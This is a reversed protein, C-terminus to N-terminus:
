RAQPARPKDEAPTTTTPASDPAPVRVRQFAPSNIVGRVFASIRYDEAAAERIIRRVTPMDPPEVRRGLAYTMLSQTFSLLFAEKHRLVAARLGAPGDITTGDYLTGSADVPTGGDKVRWKGTADFNDLALGLPDIVRHCSSCAPNNRHQEMRERVSLTRGSANTGNTEELAPVNPPPPPPPAGLLVEMVWKGRMVPSTRDAISTLTLVSGHGLIGRRYDPVTVRRFESGTVNPIGYHRAIRENVFTYDADLLDLLSRDEAVLSQFLLETEHKLAISLTQDAYPFLIPDPTTRELDQLRLWQSAFRTALAAARPDAIMRQAQKLMGGPASLRGQEAAKLLVEDPGGAWLFFSLRSALEYDGLRYETGALRAPTEEIRFLFQPSALIAELAKTIGYEFNRDSRGRAFFTMLRDFDKATVPRRFALTALRRVIAEACPGEEGPATPRCTFIMRRSPTESVGTVRHPGVISLSRLHPLTTIGYATGIETDAMTHDIPAILDNILGEFKQIFAATVRHTGARVHVPATKVTLGTKEESMRPDIDFLAVRAGDISVEMQENASTSGYLLGLPEAYFDMSFVYDGDAAFPHEVSVGGRTGLPAGEVRDLQSATKPLKFTAQTPATSPDGVALSAVRSAARLYGEMLTPSFTQVDSVNDFGDSITDAPLFATVDFDLGVLQKVAIAYEARNLRQFPRWGPDPAPGALADMRAELATALSSLQAEEPRRAGAPPMMGARLKRIMKEATEAGTAAAAPTWGQLSLGGAKARDSHCGACYQAVMEAQAAATLAGGHSVAPRIPTARADQGAAGVSGAVGVTLCGAFVLHRM